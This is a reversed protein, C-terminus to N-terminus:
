TSGIIQMDEIKVYPAWFSGYVKFDKSIASINKFLDMLNIGFMTENLSHSIEGNQILNGHLILGSFDGTAINPSDGTYDFLIGKKIDGIMEGKTLEGTKLIFNTSSISPTSSYSSRVANGTSTIGEKSATYSNHLLGNELFRGEDVIMKNKCPVGEDDFTSSGTAGDILANDKVTLMSSGIKKGRKGVLFSRKYQFTEANIASALPGLILSATGKPTLIVPVKLNKIKKRNLNQKADELALSATDKGNLERLDRVSQREFGSSTEGTSDDKVIINSSISAITKKCTTEVGNSNSVYTESYNTKFTASQSVALKDEDCVEILDAVYRSAEEIKFNEINENYLAKVNPYNDYHSPLDKFDPDPTGANMMKFANKIMMDLAFKEFRNTYSFGLSGRKDFIRVSIGNETGVESNKIANEEIEINMYRNLDIYIEAAKIMNSKQEIEKLKNEAIHYYDIEENNKMM